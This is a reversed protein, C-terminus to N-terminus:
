RGKRHREEGDAPHARIDELYPGADQAGGSKRREHTNANGMKLWELLNDSILNDKIKYSKLIRDICKKVIKM